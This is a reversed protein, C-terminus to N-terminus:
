ILPSSAPGSPPKGLTAPWGGGGGSGGAMHDLVKIGHGTKSVGHDGRKDVVDLLQLPGGEGHATKFLDTVPFNKTKPEVVGNM